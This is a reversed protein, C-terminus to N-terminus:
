AWSLLNQTIETARSKRPLWNKAPTMDATSREVESCLPARPKCEEQSANRSPKYISAAQFTRSNAIGCNGPQTLTYISAVAWIPIKQPSHPYSVATVGTSIAENVWIVYALYSVTMHYM